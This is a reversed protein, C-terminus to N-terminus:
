DHLRVAYQRIRDLATSVEVERATRTEIIREDITKGHEEDRILQM